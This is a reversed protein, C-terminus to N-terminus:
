RDIAGEGMRMALSEFECYLRINGTRERLALVFPKSNHWLNRITSAAFRRLVKFDLSGCTIALAIVEYQNLVIRVWKSENSGLGKTREAVQPLEGRETLALLNRTAEILEPDLEMASLFEITVRRRDIVRQTLTAWVSALASFAGIITGAVAAATVLDM